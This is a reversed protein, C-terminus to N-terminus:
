LSLDKLKVWKMNLNMQQLGSAVQSENEHRTKKQKTKGILNEIM